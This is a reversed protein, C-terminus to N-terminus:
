RLVSDPSLSPAEGGGLGTPINAAAMKWARSGPSAGDEDAFLAAMGAEAHAVKMREAKMRDLEEPTMGETLDPKVGMALEKEWKDILPDGTEEFVVDGNENRAAEMLAKSDSTYIDEWYLKTLEFLTLSQAREDSWPLSFKREWWRRLM